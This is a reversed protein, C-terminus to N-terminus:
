VRRQSEHNGTAAVVRRVRPPPDQVFTNDLEDDTKVQFSMKSGGKPQVRQIYTHQKAAHYGTDKNTRPLSIQSIAATIIDGDTKVM